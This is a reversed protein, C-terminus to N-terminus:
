SNKPNFYDQIKTSAQYLLNGIALAFAPMAPLIYWHLKTQAFTFLALVIIMWGLILIDTKSRKAFVNYICLGAAFPLLVAWFTENTLLYNFYYLYNENHGELPSVLRSVNAYVFHYDWFDKSIRVMYIVWPGFIAAAVGWSLTFHKTFLFKLRGTFLLYFIVIVPILLAELQKIMLALGFFVGSLVAYRNAHDIEEQSLILYYISALMFFVMPIDTMAHTAYSYFTTFTGLVFVSLLGVKPNYLKKGLHFIAVLSLVGFLSVWVRSSFNNVGMVQYSISILWMLLPPKGVWIAPEGNVWPMFYDGSKVIHYSIQTYTKEDAAWLPAGGLSLLFITAFVLILVACLININALVWSQITTGGTIPQLHPRTKWNIYFHRVVVFLIVGWVVCFLVDFVITTWFIPAAAHATQAKSDLLSFAYLHYDNSGFYLTDNVISPSSDIIGGAEYSWKEVGTYADLCYLHYDQSGVFVNGNAVTPSSWVWYGTKTQWLKQGDTANLCYVNGDDSGLYVRGYAAAASSGITDETQYLWIRAGTSANLCTIWGDYSGIYIYGNYLCPSNLKGGTYERWIKGGTTANLAYVHYDDCAVYMVGDVVAPSSDVRAETPYTWLTAGSSANYCLIDHLGSGIFVRDDVVAPSSRVHGGAKMIWVPIGSSINMCYVWGDDCGVYVNGNYIAPSSNVEHKTEFRWVQEGTSVNVCYIHCDKCGFFVLGDAIAPSSMVSASTPFSWLLEASNAQSNSTITGSHSLDHRFMPWDISSTNAASVVSLLTSLVVMLLALIILLLKGKKMAWGKLCDWTLFDINVSNYDV